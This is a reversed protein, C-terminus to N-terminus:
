REARKAFLYYALLLEPRPKLTEFSVFGTLRDRELRITLDAIATVSGSKGLLPATVTGSITSNAIRLKEVKVFEARDFKIFIESGRIRLDVPLRRKGVRVSGKWDGDLTSMGLFEKDAFEPGVDAFLGDLQRKYGPLIAGAIRFALDDTVENGVTKNVLVVVVVKEKPLVLLTAAAGEIAGNSLLTEGFGRLPLVGWGNAYYRHPLERNVTHNM